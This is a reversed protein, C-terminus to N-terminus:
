ERNKENQPLEGKVPKQKGKSNEVRDYQFDSLIRQIYM